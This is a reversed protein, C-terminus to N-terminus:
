TPTVTSRELTNQIVSLLIYMPLIILPASWQLLLISVLSIILLIYRFVNSFFDFNKFKLSILPYDIVMLASLCIISGVILYYSHLWELQGIYLTQFYGLVFITVAPTPVGYFTDGQRPDINFKALRLAAFAPLALAVYKQWGDPYFFTLLTFMLLGPVLGFSIMDALSDLQKGIESPQKLKRAVFGDLFDALLGILVLIWVYKTHGQLIWICAICGCLLNILTIFNPISFM